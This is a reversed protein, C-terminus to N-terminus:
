SRLYYLHELALNSPNISGAAKTNLLTPKPVGNGDLVSGCVILGANGPAGVYSSFCLGDAEGVLAPVPPDNCTITRQAEFAIAGTAGLFNNQVLVQLKGLGWIEGNVTAVFGALLRALSTADVRLRCSGPVAAAYNVNVVGNNPPSGQLVVQGTGAHNLDFSECDVFTPVSTFNWEHALPPTLCNIFTAETGLSMGAASCDVALACADLTLVAAAPAGSSVLVLAAASTVRELVLTINLASVLDITLAGINQLGDGALGAICIAQAAAPAYSTVDGALSSCVLVTGGAAPLAALAAALTAFPAAISGDRPVTPVLLPDVFLVSSLPAVSSGSAITERAGSPSKRISTM